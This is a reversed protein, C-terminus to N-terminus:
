VPPAERDIFPGCKQCYPEYDRPYDFDDTVSEGVECWLGGDHSLLFPYLYKIRREDSMVRYMVEVIRGTLGPGAVQFNFGDWMDGEGPPEAAIAELYCRVLYDHYKPPFSYAFIERDHKRSLKNGYMRGWVRAPGTYGVIRKLTGRMFSVDGLILHTMGDPDWHESTLLVTANISARADDDTSRIWHDAKCGIFPRQTIIHIPQDPKFERILRITRYIIPEGQVPLLHKCQGMWRSCSGAALIIIRM